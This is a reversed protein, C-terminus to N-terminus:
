ATSTRSRRLQEHEHLRRRALRDPQEPEPVPPDVDSGHDADDPRLGQVGQRRRPHLPDARDARQRELAALARVRDRARELRRRPDLRLVARAAGRVGGARERGAAVLVVVHEARELRHLRPDGVAKVTNAVLAAWQASRRRTTRPRRGDTSRSCSTSAPRRRRRRRASRPVAARQDGGPQGCRVRADLAGRHPERGPAHRQVVLRRRRRVQGHRRRRRLQHSARRSASGSPGHNKAGATAVVSVLLAASVAAAVAIKKM